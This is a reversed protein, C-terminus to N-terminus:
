GHAESRRLPNWAGPTRLVRPPEIERRNRLGAREQEQVWARYLHDVARGTWLSGSRTVSFWPTGPIPLTVTWLVAAADYTKHYQSRDPLRWPAPRAALKAARDARKKAAKAQAAKERCPPCARGAFDAM